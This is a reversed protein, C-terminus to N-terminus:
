SHLDQTTANPIYFPRSHFLKELNTMQVTQGKFTGMIYPTGYTESHNRTRFQSIFYDHFMDKNATTASAQKSGTTDPTLKPDLVQSRETPNIFGVTLLTEQKLITVGDFAENYWQTGTLAESDSGTHQEVAQTLKDVIYTRANIYNAISDSASNGENEKPTTNNVTYKVAGSTTTFFTYTTANTPDAKVDLDSQILSSGHNDNRFYYKDETSAQNSGNNLPAINSGPNVEIGNFANSKTDDKDVYQQIVTAELSAVVSNVFDQHNQEATARTLNGYSGGANNIQNLGHGEIIPQYTTILVQQRSNNTNLSITAGGPLVSNSGHDKVAQAHTSWQASSLNLNPSSQINWSIEAYSNPSLTRQYEGLVYAPKNQATLTDYKMKIYPRFSIENGAYVMRGSSNNYTQHPLQLVPSTNVDDNDSGGAPDGSYTEVKVKIGNISLPNSIYATRQNVGCLTNGRPSYGPISAHITSEYYTSNDVGDSGETNFTTNFTEMYDTLKRTGSDSNAITFGSSSVGQLDTNASNSLGSGSGANEWQAVTLKDKGRLLVAVYDWNSESYSQADTSTREFSADNLYYHKTIKGNQSETNWGQKTALIDPYNNQQTNNISLKLNKEKWQWGSCSAYQTQCQTGCNYYHPDSCDEDTHTHAKTCTSSCATPCSSTHPGVHDGKCDDTFPHNGPCSTQHAPIIWKFTHNEIHTM